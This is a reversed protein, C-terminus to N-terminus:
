AVRIWFDTRVRQQVRGAMWRSDRHFGGDSRRRVAGPLPTRKRPAGARGRAAATATRGPGACSPNQKSCIPRCGRNALYDTAGAHIAAVALEDDGVATVLIPVSIDRARVDRILSSRRFNAVPRRRDHPRPCGISAPRVGRRPDRAPSSRQRDPGAVFLEALSEPHDCRRRRHPRAAHARQHADPPIMVTQDAITSPSGEVFPDRMGHHM